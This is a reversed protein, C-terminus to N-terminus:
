DPALGELNEPDEWRQLSGFDGGGGERGILPICQPMSLNRQVSSRSFGLRASWVRQKIAVGPFPRTLSKGLMTILYLIQSALSVPGGGWNFFGPHFRSQGVIVIIGMGNSHSSCHDSFSPSLTSLGVMVIIGM